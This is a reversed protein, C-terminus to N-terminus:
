AREFLEAPAGGTPSSVRDDTRRLRGHDVMHRRFKMRPWPTDAIADHIQQLERVTFRHPLLHDPDPDRSYRARIVGIAKDIIQRHEWPLRPLKPIAVLSTRAPDRLGDLRAAPLVALHAVSLVWGRQDRDPKDFVFLQECGTDTLGAKEHLCRQVADALTERERIAGRRGGHLFTGPLALDGEPRRVLLVSPETAGPRVTLVVVDV